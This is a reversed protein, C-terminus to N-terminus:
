LPMNVATRGGVRISPTTKGIALLMLSSEQGLDRDRHQESRWPQNIVRSILWALVRGYICSPTTYHEYAWIFRGHPM